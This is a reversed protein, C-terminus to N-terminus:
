SQTAPESPQDPYVDSPQNDSSSDLEGSERLATKLSKAWMGGWWKMLWGAVYAAMCSKWLMSPYPSEFAWGFLLGISFGIFGGILILYKMLRDEM